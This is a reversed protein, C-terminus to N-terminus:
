IFSLGFLALDYKIPDEPNLRALNQTLEDVAKWDRLKRNLLKLNLANKQVHVDLPCMLEAPSSNKWLGFDIGYEDKRVMWRLFMNLRKASSGKEPNALHKGTRGPVKDKFFSQRFHIIREKATGGFFAEEMSGVHAYLNKLSDIFVLADTGNFTRHKFSEFAKLDSQSHNIIFNYPDNDMYDFFLRSNKIITSRQGWALTATVFAVIEIDKRKTFRHPVSVPDDEFFSNAVQHYVEELMERLEKDEM